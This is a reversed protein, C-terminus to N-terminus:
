EISALSKKAQTALTDNVGLELARRLSTKGETRKNLRWQAMGLYYMIEGDTGNKSAMEQFLNAAKSFDGMRYAILAIARGLDADHPFAQRAKAAITAAKQDDASSEAYLLVLDKLAPAFEPYCRLIGEFAQKAAGRNANTKNATAVTVLAPADNPDSKLLKEAKGLNALATASTASWTIRDLMQVAQTKKSFQRDNQLARLLGAEADAVRGLSYVAVAWDYLTDADDPRQKVAEDLLSAAWRHDGTLYALHGITHTIQANDPALARATKAFELAKDFDRNAANIRAAGLLAAVHKPNLQLVAQYCNLAKSSEGSQRLLGGLRMLAVPDDAQKSLHKELAVRTDLAPKEADINLIALRPPIEAAGEFRTKLQLARQFAERAADEDGQLYRALGLHYQVEPEDPMKAVSEQLLAIAAPYQKKKVLIWGLTDATRPEKPQLKRARQAMEQAKDIQGLRESYLYALNNLALTSKPEVTLAKEYAIRAAAYDKREDNFVGLLLLAPLNRPNTAVAEELSALAKMPQQSSAYIQSLLFLAEPSDPQIELVRRLTNEAAPNDGQNVYVKALLFAHPASKPNKSFSSEALARASSFDKQRLCLNVSQELAGFHGPDLEAVRAFARRADELRNQRVFVLGHSFQIHADKPQEQELKTYIAAAENLENNERFAEALLIRAGALDPRQQVLPKLVAIAASFNRQRIHLEGIALTAQTMEPAIATAQALHILAKNIEGKAARALGFHYWIQASRPFLGSLRDFEAVAKDIDGKALHVRANLLLSEAHLPDRALAKALFTESEGYKKESAALDALWVWVPLFDPTQRSVDELLRRAGATDGTQLKFQAYSLKKPSRPPSLDAARKFASDAATLEKRSWYLMGFATNVAASQPDAAQAAAFAVEAEKTHNQRLAVQGLAVLVPASKALAPPLALLRQRADDLEKPSVSADVLLLPAGEERSQRALLFLAEERAERPNNTALCALGLQLRVTLDDPRLEKAKVLLPLSRAERGQQQFIQGLGAIAQANKIDLQLVNKYEIEAKDYQGTRCALDAQELLRSVKSSRSCGHNMFASICIVVFAISRRHSPTSTPHM